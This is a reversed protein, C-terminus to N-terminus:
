STIVIHPQLPKHDGVRRFKERFAKLAESHRPVEGEIVVEDDLEQKKKRSKKPRKDINEGKVQKMLKALQKIEDNTTAAQAQLYLIDAKADTEIDEFVTRRPEYTLTSLDPSPSIKGQLLESAAGHALLSDLDLSEGFPIPDPNSPTVCDIDVEKRLVKDIDVASFFACAM